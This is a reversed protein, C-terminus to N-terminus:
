HVTKGDTIASFGALFYIFSVGKFRRFAQWVSYDDLESRLQAQEFVTETHLAVEKETSQDDPFADRDQETEHQVSPSM